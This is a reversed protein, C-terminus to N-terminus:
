KRRKSKTSLPPLSYSITVPIVKKHLLNARAKLLADGEYLFIDAISGGKWNPIITAYGRVKIRRVKQTSQPM